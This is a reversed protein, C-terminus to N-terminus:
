VSFLIDGYTPWPWVKKSVMTEMTDSLGRMEQMAQFIEDRYFHAAEELDTIRGAEILKDDLTEVAKYFSGLLNSLERLLSTETDVNVDAVAQKKRNITDALESTYEAVAPIISKKAMQLMTTAEIQLTKCYEELLIELRSRMEAESFVGHREFLAINEPRVFYPLADATSKLNLLGREEAEAM